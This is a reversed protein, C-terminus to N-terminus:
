RFGGRRALSYVLLAAFGGVFLLLLIVAAIKNGKSWTKLTGDQGRQDYYVPGTLVLACVAIVGPTTFLGLLIVFPVCWGLVMVVAHTGIIASCFGNRRYWPVATYDTPGSAPVDPDNDASPELEDGPPESARM